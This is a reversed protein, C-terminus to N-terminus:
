KQVRADRVVRKMSEDRRVAFTGPYEENTIVPSFPFCLVSAASDAPVTLLPLKFSLGLVIATLAVSPFSFTGPNSNNNPSTEKNHM